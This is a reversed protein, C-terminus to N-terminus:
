KSGGTSDRDQPKKLTKYDSSVADQNIPESGSASSSLRTSSRRRYTPRKRESIKPLSAYYEFSYKPLREGAGLIIIPLGTELDIIPEDDSQESESAM